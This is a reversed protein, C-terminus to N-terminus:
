ISSAASCGSPSAAGASFAEPGPQVRPRAKRAENALFPMVGGALTVAMDLPKIPAVGLVARLGPLLMAAFQLAASALIAAALPANPGSPGQNGPLSGGRESRCTLAHLLQALVLSGFTMTRAEASPGYRLFGYGCSALAGAAIVGGDIGLGALHERSLIPEDKRGPPRAMQDAPPPEFALGLAPLVDSILNIWLLQMVNLPQGLGIATAALVVAIESFNTSLLYHIAKRV